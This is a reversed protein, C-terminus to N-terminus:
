VGKENKSLRDLLATFGDISKAIAFLGDVINVVDPQTHGDKRTLANLFTLNIKELDSMLTNNRQTAM